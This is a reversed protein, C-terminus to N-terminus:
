FHSTLATPAMATQTINMYNTVNCNTKQSKANLINLLYLVNCGLDLWLVTSRPASVISVSLPLM